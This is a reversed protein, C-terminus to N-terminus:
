GTSRGEEEWLLDCKHKASEELLQVLPFARTALRVTDEKEERDESRKPEEGQDERAVGEKLRRLAEPVDIALVAGPVDGSMGMLGLLKRAVDGFMTLSGAKGHFKVLM